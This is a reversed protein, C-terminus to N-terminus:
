INLNNTQSTDRNSNPHNNNYNGSNLITSLGISRFESNTDRNTLNSFNTKSINSARVVAYNPTAAFMSSSDVLAVTAFRSSERLTNPTSTNM